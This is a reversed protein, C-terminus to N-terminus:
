LTWTNKAVMERCSNNTRSRMKKSAKVKILEKRKVVRCRRSRVRRSEVRVQTSSGRAMRRRVKVGAIPGKSRRKLRKVSPRAVSSMM